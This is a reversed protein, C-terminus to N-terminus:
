ELTEAWAQAATALDADWRLPDVSHEARKANHAQLQIEGFTLAEEDAVMLDIQVANTYAALLGAAWNLRNMM